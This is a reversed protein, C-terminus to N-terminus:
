SVPISTMSVISIRSSGSSAIIDTIVTASPANGPDPSYSAAAGYLGKIVYKSMLARAALPAAKISTVTAAAIEGLNPVMKDGFLMSGYEVVPTGATRLAVNNLLEFTNKQDPDCDPRKIENVFKADSFQARVVAGLAGDVANIPVSELLAKAYTNFSEPLVTAAIASSVMLEVGYLATAASVSAVTPSLEIRPGVKAVSQQTVGRIASNCLGAIQNVAADPSLISPLAGFIGGAIIGAATAMSLAYHNDSYGDQLMARALGAVAYAGSAAGIIAGGVKVGLGIPSSQLMQMVAYKMSASCATSFADRMLAGTMAGGIQLKTIPQNQIEARAREIELVIDQESPAMLESIMRLQSASLADIQPPTALDDIPHFKNRVSTIEKSWETSDIASTTLTPHPNPACISIASFFNLMTIMEHLFFQVAYSGYM